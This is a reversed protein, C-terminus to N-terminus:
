RPKKERDKKAKELYQGELQLLVDIEVGWTAEGYNSPFCSKIFHDLLKEMESDKSSNNM